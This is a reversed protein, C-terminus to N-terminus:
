KDLYMIMGRKGNIMWDSEAETALQQVLDSSLGVVLEAKMTRLSLARTPFYGAARGFPTTPDWHRDGVLRRFNVDGKLITLDHSGIDAKLAKPLQRYDRGTTFFPPTELIIEGARRRKELRSALEQNSQVDSGALREIVHNYDRVMVDSVFFPQNKLYYTISTAFHSEILFDILALDFYIEDGVNDFIYAIKGPHHGLFDFVQESDNRILKESQASMDTEFSGLNSLDSRNGWLARYLVTRFNELSPAFSPPTGQIQTFTPLAENIQNLKLRAYPDQGMWPGPQFYKVLELVRRYFYAEALFWPIDLWYKGAWPQLDHDWISKDSAPEQLLTVVGQQLEDKFELLATHVDRPYDFDLLLQDLVAPKRSQITYRAFSGEESTMLYPPLAISPM